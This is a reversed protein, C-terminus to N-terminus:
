PLEKEDIMKTTPSEFAHESPIHGSTQMRMSLFLIFGSAAAAAAVTVPVCVVGACFISTTAVHCHRCRRFGCLSVLPPSLLSRMASIQILIFPQYDAVFSFATTPQPSRPHPRLCIIVDQILTYEVAWAAICSQDEFIFGLGLITSEHFHCLTFNDGVDLFLFRM